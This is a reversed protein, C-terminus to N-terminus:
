ERFREDVGVKFGVENMGEGFGWAGFIANGSGNLGKLGHIQM